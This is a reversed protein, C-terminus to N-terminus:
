EATMCIPSVRFMVRKSGSTMLLLWLVMMVMVLVLGQYMKFLLCINQYETKWKNELQRDRETM